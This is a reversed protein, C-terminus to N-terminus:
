TEMKEFIMTKKSRKLTKVYDATIRLSRIFSDLNVYSRLYDDVNDTGEVFKYYQHLSLYDAVDYTHELVTRDWEPFTPMYEASSGVVAVQISPDTWKMMKAAERAKAGYEKATLHCMQWDGDMENGICWVPINYPDKGGNKKRLDSWYSGGEFNCYEVMDAADQPGATGMNVAAMIDCGAKKAWIAFEDIGVQNSEVSKWALELRRPRNERPGIGDQWRYGSVFNGGPYRVIPVGLEKVMELVDTRFGDEDALPHGPEYIGTYIARGIHELFSGFLNKSIAGIAREKDVSVTVKRTM